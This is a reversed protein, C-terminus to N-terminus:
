PPGGRYMFDCRFQPEYKLCVDMFASRKLDRAREEEIQLVLAVTALSVLLAIPIIQSNM